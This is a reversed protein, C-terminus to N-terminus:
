GWLPYARYQILYFYIRYSDKILAFLTDKLYLKLAEGVRANGRRALARSRLFANGEAIGDTVLIYFNTIQFSSDWSRLNLSQSEM